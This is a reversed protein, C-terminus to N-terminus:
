APYHLHQTDHQFFIQGAKGFDAGVFVGDINAKVGKVPNVPRFNAIFSDWEIQNQAAQLGRFGHIRCRARRTKDGARYAFFGRFPARAVGEAREAAFAALEDVEALPRRFGVTNGILFDGWVVARSGLM